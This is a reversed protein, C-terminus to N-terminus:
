DDYKATSKVEFDIGSETEFGGSITGDISFWLGYNM